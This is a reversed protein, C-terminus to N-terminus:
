NKQVHLRGSVHDGMVFNVTGDIVGSLITASIQVKGNDPVANGPVANSIMAIENTDRYFRIQELPRRSIPSMGSYDSRIFYGQLEPRFIVERNENVGDPVEVLNLQLEVPIPRDAGGTPAVEGTYTGVLQSYVRRLADRDSLEKATSSDDKAPGCGALLVAVPLALLLTRLFNL